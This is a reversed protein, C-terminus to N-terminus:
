VVAEGRGVHRHEGFLVHEAVPEHAAALLALGGIGKKGLERCERGAVEHNVGLVADAPVFSQRLNGYALHRVVADGKFIRAAVLEVHGNLVDLQQRPVAAVAIADREVAEAAFRPLLALRPHLLPDALNRAFEDLHRSQACRPGADDGFGVCAIRLEDVAEGILFGVILVARDGIDQLVKLRTLRHVPQDAAVDSEALGLHRQASAM